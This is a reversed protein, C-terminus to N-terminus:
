RMRDSIQKLNTPIKGKLLATNKKIKQTKAVNPNMEKGVSEKKQWVVNRKELLFMERSSLNEQTNEKKGSNSVQKQHHTSYSLQTSPVICSHEFQVWSQSLYCLNILNQKMM